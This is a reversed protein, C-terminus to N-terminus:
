ENAKEEEKFLGLTIFTALTDDAVMRTLLEYEGGTIGNLREALMRAFRKRSAIKSTRDYDSNICRNSCYPFEDPGDDYSVITQQSYGEEPSVDILTGCVCCTTPVTVSHFTRM